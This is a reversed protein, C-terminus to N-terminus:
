ILLIEADGHCMKKGRKTTRSRKQIYILTNLRLLHICLLHSEDGNEANLLYWDEQKCWCYRHLPTIFSAAPSRSQPREASPGTAGERSNQSARAQNSRRRPHLRIFHFWLVHFEPLRTHRCLFPNFTDQQMLSIVRTKWTNMDSSKRRWRVLNLDISWVGLERHWSPCSGSSSALTWPNHM